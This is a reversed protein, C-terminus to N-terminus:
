QPSIPRLPRPIPPSASVWFAPCRYPVIDQSKNNQVQANHINSDFHKLNPENLDKKKTTVTM